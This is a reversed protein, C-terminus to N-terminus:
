RTGFYKDEMTITKEKKKKKSYGHCNKKKANNVTEIFIIYRKEENM